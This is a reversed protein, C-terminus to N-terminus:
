FLPTTFLLPHEKHQTCSSTMLHFNKRTVPGKHPFNVSWRHIGRVFALSAASQHKRQDVCSYVSSFVITLSTIQYAMASMMVDSYHSPNTHWSCIHGSTYSWHDPNWICSLIIYVNIIIPKAVSLIVLLSYSETLAFIYLAINRMIYMFSERHFCVITTLEAINKGWTCGFDSVFEKWLKFGSYFFTSRLGYSM